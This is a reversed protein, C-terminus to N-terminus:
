FIEEKEETTYFLNMYDGAQETECLELLFREAKQREAKAIEELAAIKAVIGYDELLKQLREFLIRSGYLYEGEHLIKAAVMAKFGAFQLQGPVVSIDKVIYDLEEKLAPNMLMNHKEGYIASDFASANKQSLGDTVVIIDLDSGRVLEGTSSEPRPETHAMSYVVDGAIIFCAKNELDASGRHDDVLKRATERALEFKKRSTEKIQQLLQKARRATEELDSAAGVVTYSSFERMISPSLRAYGEVQRDLRLYRNGIVVTHIEESLTCGRWLTYEDAGTECCLEKGILPGRSKLISLVNEM